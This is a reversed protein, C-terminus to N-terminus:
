NLEIPFVSMMIVSTTKGIMPKILSSSKLEKNNLDVIKPSATLNNIIVSSNGEENLVLKGNFEPKVLEENGLKVISVQNDKDKPLVVVKDNGLEGIIPHEIEKLNNGELSVVKSENNKDNFVVFKNKGIEFIVPEVIEKLIM